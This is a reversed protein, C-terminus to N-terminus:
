RKSFAKGRPGTTGSTAVEFTCVTNLVDRMCVIRHGCVFLLQSTNLDGRYARVQTFAEARAARLHEEGKILARLRPDLVLLRICM